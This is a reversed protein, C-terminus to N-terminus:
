QGKYRTNIKHVNLGGKIVEAIALRNHKTSEYKYISRNKFTTYDKDWMWRYIWGDSHDNYHYVLKVKRERVLDWVEKTTSGPFKKKGNLVTGNYDIKLRNKDITGDKNLIINQKFKRIYLYGLRYPLKFEFGEYKIKESVLYNFRQLIAKFIRNNVGTKKNRLRYTRYQKNISSRKM